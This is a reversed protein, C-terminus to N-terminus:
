NLNITVTPPTSGSVVNSSFAVIQGGLATKKAYSLPYKEIVWLVQLHCTPGDVIILLYPREETTLSTLMTMRETTPLNGEDKLLDFITPYAVLAKDGRQNTCVEVM